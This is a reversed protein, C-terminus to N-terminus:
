GIGCAFEHKLKSVDCLSVVDEVAPMLFSAFKDKLERIFPRM